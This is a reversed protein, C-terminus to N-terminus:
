DDWADFSLEIIPCKEGRDARSKYLKYASDFMQREEDNFDKEFESTDKNDYAKDAATLYIDYARSAKM